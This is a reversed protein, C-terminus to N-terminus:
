RSSRRSRRPRSRSPTPCGSVSAARHGRPVVGDGRARARRERRARGRLDQRQRRHHQPRADGRLGPQALWRALWTFVVFPRANGIHARQYVTPGCVYMGVPEPPPPLEVLSGRRAHRPPAHRSRLRPEAPLGRRAAVGRSRRTARAARRRGDVARPRARRRDARAAAGEPRRRGGEARARDGARRTRTSRTPRRRGCSPSGSSRRDRRPASRRGARARPDVARDRAGRRAHPRRSARAGAGLPADAPRPWSRTPCRRSRMSRSGASGAATSASTTRAPLGLEDLYARLPRPPSGRRGCIPSRAHATGSRSSRATTASCCGTHIVEPLEGGLARAIRQQVEENPRHDSGRIVHTIGLALDDAVSALQYTATGDPASRADVEGLRISGDADRTAGGDDRRRPRRGRLREGRESQRVPGEDWGIGLWRSTTSSRRRAEPSSGRRIPTTSGCCSRGATSTPSRGTRSPAHARERSPAIRDPEARVPRPRSM